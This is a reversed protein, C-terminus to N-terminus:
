GMASAEASPVDDTVGDTVARQLPGNLQWVAIRAPARAALAAGSGGHASVFPGRAVLRCESGARSVSGGPESLQALETSSDTPFPDPM